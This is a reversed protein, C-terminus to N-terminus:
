MWVAKRLCRTLFLLFWKRCYLISRMDFWNISGKFGSLTTFCLFVIILLERRLSRGSVLIVECSLTDKLQFLISRFVENLVFPEVLVERIQYLLTIVSVRLEELAFVKHLMNFTTFLQATHCGKVWKIQVIIFSFFHPNLKVFYNVRNVVLHPPVFVHFVVVKFHPIEKMFNIRM